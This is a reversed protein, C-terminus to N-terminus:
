KGFCKSDNTRFSVNWFNWHNEKKPLLKIRQTNDRKLASIRMKEITELSHKTRKQM